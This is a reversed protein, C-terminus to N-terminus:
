KINKRLRSLSTQTIGLYSSLYKLPVRHIFETNLVAKKYRETANQTQLLLVNDVAKLFAKEWIQRGFEQWKPIQIYLQDMKGPEITFLTSDEIAQFSFHSPTQFKISPLEAIFENEFAIWLTKDNPEEDSFIRLAGSAIFYYSSAVQGIKLIYSGKILEKISFNSLIINLDHDNIDILSRIYDALKIM